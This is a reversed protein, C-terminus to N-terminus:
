RGMEGQLSREAAIEDREGRKGRTERIPYEGGWGWREKFLAERQREVERGRRLRM